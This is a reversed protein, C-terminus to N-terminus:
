RITKLVYLAKWTVWKSPRGSKELPAWMRQRYPSRGNWRGDNRRHEELWKVAEGFTSERSLRGLDALVELIFLVDAQYFLPFSLWDWLRHRRTPTPYKGERLEHCGLFHVGAEIAENVHPARESPSICSFGWLARAAGWACALGENIECRWGGRLGAQGLELEFQRVREDAGYGLAHLYGILNGHFCPYILTRQEQDVEQIMRRCAAAIREDDGDAALEALLLLQWHTATYKRTYYSREGEWRGDGAYHKLIEVVPGRHAIKRRAEQAEPGDLPRDLLRILTWYRVSPAEPELLWAIIESHLAKTQNM